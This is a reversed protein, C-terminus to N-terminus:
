SGMLSALSPGGAKGSGGTLAGAAGFAGGILDNGSQMEDLQSQAQDSLAGVRYGYATRATNAQTTGVNEQQVERQSEQVKVASGTNVNIGNAAQGAKLKGAAGANQLSLDFQNVNGSQLAATANENQIIANNGAVQAQYGAANSSSIGGALAGAASVALGIWAAPM